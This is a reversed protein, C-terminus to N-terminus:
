ATAAVPDVALRVGQRWVARVSLTDDIKETPDGDVLVLDARLGPEVRGRDALEFRRAVLATAANLAQVPTFGARVLLGLESHLSAGHATGPAGLHAADTGALVDVGATRLAAVTALAFAFNPEPATHWTEALSELWVPPVKPRVRSDAALEAGTGQGTISALTSLTPIVFVGAEAIRSVIRPTHPADVFLHTLADVGADVARETAEITLAHALVKLGNAHAERVAAELVDQALVPVPGGLLQGDEILVKLYDAGEAIRDAVFGPVEQVSGATPWAPDGQGKRLQHPHGDAPTLGVSASRVDALDFSRAVTRRLPGMQEAMSLLDLETTVGFTLAQRLSAEDTHTHADILGPLLTAGVGDIVQDGPHRPGDVAAIVGRVVRVDVRGRSKEGDFVQAGSIVFSEDM